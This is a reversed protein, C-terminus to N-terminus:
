RVRVRGARASSLALQRSNTKPRCCRSPRKARRRTPVCTNIIASRISWAPRPPSGFVSGLGAAANGEILFKDGTDGMREVRYKDSPKYNERVYKAGENVVWMNLQIPKAKGKFHFTIAREIEAMEIGILEALAGVYVMNAVYDRLSADAGSEKAIKAVPLPVFTVDDRNERIKWEQPYICLGGSALKQIDEAQTAPNMAVLVEYDDRRAIYGDKNVRITYWTPLGSINSPFLNKGNVPIGMKFLARIITANATQSGSGNVTAAVISFDNVLPYSRTDPAANAGPQINLTM